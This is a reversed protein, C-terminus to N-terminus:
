QWNKSERKTYIQHLHAIVKELRDYSIHVISDENMHSVEHLEVGYKDQSIIIQNERNLILETKM